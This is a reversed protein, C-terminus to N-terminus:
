KQIFLFILVAALIQVALIVPVGLTFKAHKTKHRWIHMGLLTGISGGCAAILMLTGESIRWQNKKAKIKDVLMFLFGAANIILLYAYVLTM